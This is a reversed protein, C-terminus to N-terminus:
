QRRHGAVQGIQQTHRHAQLLVPQVTKGDLGTFDHQTFVHTEVGTFFGVIFTKGAAHRGQAVHEDHVGKARGM